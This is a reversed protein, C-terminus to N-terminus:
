AGSRAGAAGRRVFFVIVALSAAAMLLIIGLAGVNGGWTFLKLVPATPDGAKGDDTVAFAVVVILSLATQLLLRHRARRQLQQHPRVHRAAPGRPGHRLRLALRRQPLQPAGRVHRHRVPRPRHGHLHRRAPKETLFFMLGASQKQATPIIASPGAAVTLAWSSIAFFVAVFGVAMFMVRPVLIHPRSTEEAYM